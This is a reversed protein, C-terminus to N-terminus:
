TFLAMLLEDASTDSFPEPDIALEDAIEKPLQKVWVTRLAIEGADKANSLRIRENSLNLMLANLHTSMIM